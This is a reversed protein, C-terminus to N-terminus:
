NLQGTWKLSICLSPRQSDGHIYLYLFFILVVVPIQQAEEWSQSKIWIQTVFKVNRVILIRATELYNTLHRNSM